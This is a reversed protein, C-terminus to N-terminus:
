NKNTQQGHKTASLYSGTNQHYCACHWEFLLYSGGWSLVLLIVTHGALVWILRPLRGTQDSDESHMWHTALSGLKKWTSLPSESWVPCIGLSIQTKAPHVTMKNTKDHPAEYRTLEYVFVAVVVFALLFPCLYLYMIFLNWLSTEKVLIWSATTKSGRYLWM